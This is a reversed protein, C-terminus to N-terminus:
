HGAILNLSLSNVINQVISINLLHSWALSYATGAGATESGAGLWGLEPPPFYWPDTPRQCESDYHPECFVIRSDKWGIM